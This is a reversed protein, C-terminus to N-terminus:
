FRPIVVTEKADTPLENVTTGQTSPRCVTTLYSRMKPLKNTRHLDTLVEKIGHLLFLVAPKPNAWITTFIAV